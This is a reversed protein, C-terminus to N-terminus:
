NEKEFWVRKGDILKWSKGKNVSGYKDTRQQETLTSIYAASGLGINKKREESLPVGTLAKSINNKREPTWTEPLSMHKTAEIRQEPTMSEWRLRSKDGIIKKSEDNQTSKGKVPSVKGRLHSVRKEITALSQKRGTAKESMTRKSEETHRLQKKINEYTRSSIKYDRNQNKSKRNMMKMIAFLMKYKSDGVTM